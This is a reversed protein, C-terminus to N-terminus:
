RHNRGRTILDGVPTKLDEELEEIRRRLRQWNVILLFLGLFLGAVCGFGFEIM